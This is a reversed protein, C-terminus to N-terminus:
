QGSMRWELAIIQDTPVLSTSTVMRPGRSPATVTRHQCRSDVDALDFLMVSEKDKM